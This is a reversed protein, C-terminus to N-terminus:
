IDFDIKINSFDCYDENESNSDLELCVGAGWVMWPSYTRTSLDLQSGTVLALWLSGMRQVHKTFFRRTPNVSPQPQKMLYHLDLSRTSFDPGSWASLKVLPCFRRGAGDQTWTLVEADTSWGM